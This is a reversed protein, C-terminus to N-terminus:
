AAKMSAAGDMRTAIEEARAVGEGTRLSAILGPGLPLPQPRQTAVFGAVEAILADPGMMAKELRSLFTTGRGLISFIDAPGPTSTDGDPAELTNLDARGRAMLRHIADPTIALSGDLVLFDRLMDQRAFWLSALTGSVAHFPNFLLRLRPRGQLHRSLREGEAGAVVITRLIGCSELVDIQRDILARGGVRRLSPLEPPAFPPRLAHSAIIISKSLM